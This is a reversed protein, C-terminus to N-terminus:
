TGGGPIFCLVNSAMSCMHSRGDPSDRNQEVREPPVDLWVGDSDRQAQWRGDAGQRATRVPACDVRSCCSVNPLDPRTWTEYFQGVAGTFTETPHQHEQAHALSLCAFFFGASAPSLLRHM